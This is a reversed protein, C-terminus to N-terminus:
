ELDDQLGRWTGQSQAHWEKQQLARKLWMWDTRGPKQSSNQEGLLTLWKRATMETVSYHATCVPNNADNIQLTMDDCEEKNKPWVQLM